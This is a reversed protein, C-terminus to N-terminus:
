QAATNAPAPGIDSYRSSPVPAAARERLPPLRQWRSTQEAIHRELTESVYKSFPGLHLYLASMKIVSRVASPNRLACDITARWFHRAVERTRSLKWVIAALERLNRGLPYPNRQKSCDLMLGVERVRSFYAAPAYITEVIDRCDRLIEGRPRTTDFNLGVTCQDCEEDLFVDHNPHLRGEQVLRRTLQTNPLAILLGVMCVPIAASEILATIQKAVNTKEGDFGVIFGATVFIGARYISHVNAVLDRKANQKKSAAVLTEPDPTEIGVFIAFFNARRMLRLLEQDDALNISAETSFEFPYDRQEQWEALKPLFKKLARKNGIMNDDVFDVWGRYGFKYLAALEDLMQDDTKARPVRGYLEIIDCFECTFPCGRSFQVGVHLYQEFKLLDFRPIPSTTVDVQFKEAEFVGGTDNRELAAVLDKVVDEAEGIIRFDANAYVHPSSSIDPGGVAVRKGRAKCLDILELTDLQQPLMGGTMVIDAWAVDDESLEETNRNVLRFNWHAPLMAAVTILGLPAAPYRAGSVECTARYNWFSLSPFRPYVLLVNLQTPQMNPM